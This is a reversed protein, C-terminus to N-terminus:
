LGSAQWLRDMAQATIQAAQLPDQSAITNVRESFPEPTVPGDYGLQALKRMFAPLDIVGTEMPLRRVNDVLQDRPVGAPADNVHVTVIDDARIRDLDAVTGGSTYLHWADLLLGVNGTGIAAALEMMGDLTYIFEYKRNARLTKPGIFEIGFHCGADKLVQAIPRFRAVHWAFNEAFPRTDSAPPCWTATRTCGLARGVAALRPLEALDAEWQDDKNWAVPLGWQGPRVGAQAFLDRVYDIGHAEALHAAERIDFDIGAFGTQQALAIQEPLAMGRIGIAGVSLNKFM